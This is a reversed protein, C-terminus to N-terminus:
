PHCVGLATFAWSRLARAEEELKRGACYWYDDADGEVCPALDTVPPLNGAVSRLNDCSWSRTQVRITRPEPASVQPTSTWCGVLTLMALAGACFWGVIWGLLFLTARETQTPPQQWTM